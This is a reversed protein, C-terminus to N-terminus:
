REHLEDRSWTIHGNTGLPLGERLLRQQRERAARYRQTEQLHEELVQSLLGSLSTGRDVALHRAERVLDGPLSLTVNQRNM